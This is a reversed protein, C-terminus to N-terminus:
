SDLHHSESYNVPAQFNLISTTSPSINDFPLQAQYTQALQAGV